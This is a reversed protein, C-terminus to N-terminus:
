DCGTSNIACRDLMEADTVDKRAEERRQSEEAAARAQAQRSQKEARRRQKDQERQV